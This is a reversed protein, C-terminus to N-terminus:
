EPAAGETTGTGGQGLRNITQESWARIAAAQEPALPDLFHRRVNGGHAVVAREVLRRGEPTLGIGTRRGSAGSEARVVLGRGEMRTLQHSVRSKEWGLSAALDVVRMESGPARLLTVLVSFEAKSIGIESQLRRDIEQLLLRQAQMWTDWLDWEEPKLADPNRM